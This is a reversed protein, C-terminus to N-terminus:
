QLAMILDRWLRKIKLGFLGLDRLRKEYSLRQMGRIIKQGDEPGVQLPGHWTSICFRLMKYPDYCALVKLYYHASTWTQFICKKFSFCVFFILQNISRYNPLKRASQISVKSSLISLFHVKLEHMNCVFLHVVEKIRCIKFEKQPHFHCSQVFRSVGRILGCCVRTVVKRPEGTNGYKLPASKRLFIMTYLSNMNM